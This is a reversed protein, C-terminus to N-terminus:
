FEGNCINIWNVRIQNSVENVLQRKVVSINDSTELIDDSEELIDKVTLGMIMGFQKTTPVGTKSIVNRIRNDTIYTQLESLVEKDKDTMQVPAVFNKVKNKRESFKENKHKIAVRTLGVFSPTLPMMVFGEATNTDTYKLHTDYIWQEMKGANWDKVLSDFDNRMSILDDFKGIKVLPPNRFLGVATLNLQVFFNVYKNDIMIDFVYFEFKGYDIGTQIKKGSDLDGAYEGFIQIVSDETAYDFLVATEFLKVCKDKYRKLLEDSDYFNETEGIIATRKATKVSDKTVIFSFNTGHIKERAIWTISPDALGSTIIKNIFKKDTHNTLSNYKRFM